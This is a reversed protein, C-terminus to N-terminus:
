YEQVLVVLTLRASAQGLVWVGLQLIQGYSGKGLNGLPILYLCPEQLHLVLCQGVGGQGLGNHELCAM